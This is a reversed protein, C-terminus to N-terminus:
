EKLSDKITITISREVNPNEKTAKITGFLKDLLLSYPNEGIEQRTPQAKLIIPLSEEQSNLEKYGNKIAHYDINGFKNNLEEDKKLITFFLEEEPINIVNDLNIAYRVTLLQEIYELSSLSKQNSSFNGLKNFDNVAGSLTNYLTKIFSDHWENTRSFVSKLINTVEKCKELCAMKHATDESVFEESRQYHQLGRRPNYEKDQDIRRTDFALKTLPKDTLISDRLCKSKNRIDLNISASKVLAHIELLESTKSM